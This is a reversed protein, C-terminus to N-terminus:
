IRYKNVIDNLERMFQDYECGAVCCIGNGGISIYTDFREGMDYYSEVNVTADGLYATQKRTKLTNM